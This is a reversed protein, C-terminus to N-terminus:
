VRFEAQAITQFIPRALDKRQRRRGLNWERNHQQRCRQCPALLNGPELLPLSHDRPAASLAVLIKWVSGEAPFAVAQGRRDFWAVAKWRRGLDRRVAAVTAHFNGLLRGLDASWRGSGDRMTYVLRGGPRRCFQCCCGSAAVM